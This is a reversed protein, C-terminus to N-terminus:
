YRRLRKWLMGSIFAVLFLPISMIFFTGIGILIDKLPTKGLKVNLFILILVIPLLIILLYNMIKRTIRQIYINNAPFPDIKERRKAFYNDYREREVILVGFIIFLIALWIITFRVQNLFSVVWFGVFFWALLTVTLNRILIPNVTGIKKKKM